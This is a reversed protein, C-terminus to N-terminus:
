TGGWFKWTGGGLATSVLGKFPGTCVMMMALAEATQRGMDFTIIQKGDKPRTVLIDVDDLLDKIVAAAESFTVRSALSVM